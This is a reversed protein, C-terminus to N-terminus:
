GRRFPTVTLVGASSLRLRSSVRSAGGTLAIARICPAKSGTVLHLSARDRQLKRWSLTNRM